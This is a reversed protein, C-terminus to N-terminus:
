LKVNEVPEVYFPAGLKRKHRSGYDDVVAQKSFLYIGQESKMFLRSGSAYHYLTISPADRVLETTFVCIVHMYRPINVRWINEIYELGEGRFQLLAWCWLTAADDCDGSIKASHLYEYFMNGVSRTNDLMGGLPDHRYIFHLNMWAAVDDLNEFDPRWETSPRYKNLLSSFSNRLFVLERIFLPGM